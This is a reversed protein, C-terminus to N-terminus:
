VQCTLQFRLLQRNPPGNQSMETLGEPKAVSQATFGCISQWKSKPSRGGLSAKMTQFTSRVPCSVTTVSTWDAFQAGFRNFSCAIPVQGFLSWSQESTEMEKSERTTKCHVTSFMSLVASLCGHRPTQNSEPDASCKVLHGRQARPQHSMTSTVLQELQM